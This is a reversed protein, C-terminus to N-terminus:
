DVRGAGKASVGAIGAWLTLLFALMWEVGAGGDDDGDLARGVAEQLAQADAGRVLEDDVFTSPLGGLAAASFMAMHAELEERTQESELCKRFASVDVELKQALLSLGKPTMQSREAQYLQEAMSDRKDDPTCLYARAAPDAGPHSKLPMMLRVVHVGSQAHAIEEIAPHLQRCFPCEFDTFMAINVKGPQYHARVSPPVDVKPAPHQWLLPTAVAAVGAAAWALRLPLPEDDPERRYLVFTAGAAVIASIDVAMCWLCVADVVFLQIGILALAGTAALATQVALMRLHTKRSAWLAMAFLGVFTGIGITPLSVGFVSSYASDRVASCGSQVGCFAPSAARYDMFMAASAVVAVLLATRLLVNLLRTTM